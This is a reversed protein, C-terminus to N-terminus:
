KYIMVHLIKSDDSYISLWIMVRLVAFDSTYKCGEVMDRVVAHNQMYHYVFSESLVPLMMQIVGISVSHVSFM